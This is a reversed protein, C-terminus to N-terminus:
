KMGFGDGETMFKFRGVNLLLVGGGRENGPFLLEEVDKLYDHGRELAFQLADIVQVLRDLVQHAADFLEVTTDCVIDDLVIGYDAFEHGEVSPEGVLLAGLGLSCCGCGCFLGGGTGVNAGGGPVGGRGATILGRGCSAVLVHEIM